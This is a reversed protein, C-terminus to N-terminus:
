PRSGPFVSRGSKKQAISVGAPPTISTRAPRGPTRRHYILVNRCSVLDLNSFPPGPLTTSAFKGNRINKVVQLATRKLFFEEAAQAHRGAQHKRSNGARGERRRGSTRPSSRSRSRRPERASSDLLAIALSYAEEGTSCGPVWIRLGPRPRRDRRRFVRKGPNHLDRDRFFSTVLILLDNQPSVEDPRDKLYRV